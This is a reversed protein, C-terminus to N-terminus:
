RRKRIESIALNSAIRYLYTSFRYQAEYRVVAGYVRLFTAQALDVATDYDNLMPFVFNTIPTLYLRVVEKFALEDGDRVAAVRHHHSVAEFNRAANVTVQAQYVNAYGM